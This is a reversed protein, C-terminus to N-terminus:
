ISASAPVKSSAAILRGSLTSACYIKEFKLYYLLNLCVKLILLSIKLKM